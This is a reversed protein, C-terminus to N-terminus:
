IKTNGHKPLYRIESTHVDLLSVRIKQRVTISFSGEQKAWSEWLIERQNWSSHLAQPCEHNEDLSAMVVRVTSVGVLAPPLTPVAGHAVALNSTMSFCSVLGRSWWGSLGNASARWLLAAGYMGVSSFCFDNPLCLGSSGEDAGAAPWSYILRDVRVVGRTM